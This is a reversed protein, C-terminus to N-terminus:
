FSAINIQTGITIQNGSFGSLDPGAMRTYQVYLGASGYVAIFRLELGLIHTNSLLAPELYVGYGTLWRGTLGAQVIFHMKTSSTVDGYNAEVGLSPFIVIASNSASSSSTFTLDSFGLNLYTGVVWQADARQSTQTQPQSSNSNGNNSNGNNSNTTQTGGAQTGGTSSPCSEYYAIIASAFPRFAAFDCKKKPVLGQFAAALQCYDSNAVPTDAVPGAPTPGAPAPAAPTPGAPAPAAPTPGAPAPAAPTPRAPPPAAPTPAIPTQGAPTPAAPSPAAPTPGAPSPAAPTPGAPTPQAPATQVPAPNPGTASKVAYESLVTAVAAVLRDYQTSHGFTKLYLVNLSQTQTGPNLLASGATSTGSTASVSTASLGNYAIRFTTSPSALQYGTFAVGGVGGGSNKQVDAGVTFNGGTALPEAPLTGQNNLDWAAEDDATIRGRQLLWYVGDMIINKAAACIADSNSNGQLAAKTKEVNADSDTKEKAANTSTTEADTKAKVAAAAKMDAETKKQGATTAKATDDNVVKDAADVADKAAMVTKKADDVAAEVVRAAVMQKAVQALKDTAAAKLSKVKTQAAMIKANLSKAFARNTANATPKPVSAIAADRAVAAAAAAATASNVLANANILANQRIKVVDQAKNYLTKKAEVDLKATLVAAKADAETTAARSAELNADSAIKAKELADNTARMAADAKIKATAAADNAAKVAAPSPGPTVPTPGRKHRTTFFQGSTVFPSQALVTLSCTALLTVQAVILIATIQSRM